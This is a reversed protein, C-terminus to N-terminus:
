LRLVAGAEDRLSVRVALAMELVAAGHLERPDHGTLRLIKHLKYQVTNKHVFLAEATAQVSGHNEFYVALFDLIKEREKETCASFVGNMFNKRAEVSLEGALIELDASDYFCVKRGARMAVLLAKDARAYAVRIARTYAPSQNVGICADLGAAESAAVIKEALARLKETPAPLVFCVYRYPLKYYFGGSQGRVIEHIQREARDLLEQEASGTQTGSKKLAVIFVTRPERINIGLQLGREAFDDDNQPVGSFLWEEIFQSWLAARLQKQREAWSNLLLIETMKKIIHGDQRVKDKDGTVGIVGVTEGEFVLPLNVGPLAGEYEDEDSVSLESLGERLLRLAGGHLTGMRAPNTSAIIIGHEDMMNVDHHILSSMETVIRMASEESLLM